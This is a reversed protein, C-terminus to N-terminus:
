KEPDSEGDGSFFVLEKEESLVLAGSNIEVAARDSEFVIGDNTRDHYYLGALAKENNFLSGGLARAEMRDLTKMDILRAKGIADPDAEGKDRRKQAKWNAMDNCTFLFCYDELGKGLKRGDLNLMDFVVLEPAVGDNYCYCSAYMGSGFIFCDDPVIIEGADNLFPRGVDIM